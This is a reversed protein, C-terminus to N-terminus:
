ARGSMAETWIPCYGIKIFTMATLNPMTLKRKYFFSGVEAKPLIIVNELNEFIVPLNNEDSILKDKEKEVRM